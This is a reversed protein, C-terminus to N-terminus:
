VVPVMDPETRDKVMTDKVLQTETLWGLLQTLDQLVARLVLQEV